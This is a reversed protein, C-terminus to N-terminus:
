EPFVYDRNLVDIITKAIKKDDDSSFDDEIVAIATSYFVRQESFPRDYLDRWNYNKDFCFYPHSIFQIERYMLTIADFLKQDLNDIAKQIAEDKINIFIGRTIPDSAYFCTLKFGFVEFTIIDKNYFHHKM